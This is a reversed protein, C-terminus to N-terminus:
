RYEQLQTSYGLMLPHKPEGNACKGFCRLQCNRDLLMRRVSAGRQRYEGHRGWACVVFPTSIAMVNLYRANEPGVPDAARYLGKPDTSCLAFINYVDLRGFGWRKAFEILKTVTHDNGVEGAVSPNLLVCVLAPLLEDWLRWLHYRWTRCDSFTAGTYEVLGCVGHM